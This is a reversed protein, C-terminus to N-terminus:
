FTHTHTLARTSRLCIATNELWLFQKSPSFGKVPNLKQWNNTRPRTKAFHKTHFLDIRHAILCPLDSFCQLVMITVFLCQLRVATKENSGLCLSLEHFTDEVQKSIQGIQFVWSSLRHGTSPKMKAGQLEEKHRPGNEIEHNIEGAQNQLPHMLSQKLKALFSKSIVEECGEM